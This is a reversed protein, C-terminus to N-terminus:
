DITLPDQQEFDPNPSGVQMYNPQQTNPMRSRIAEHFNPHSGTWAGKNWVALLNETFLGNSFGDLSLQEDQCGSILLVTAGVDSASESSRPVANQIGDYLEANQRYTAIM